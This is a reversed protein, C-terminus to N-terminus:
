FVKNKLVGSLTPPLDKVAEARVNAVKLEADSLRATPPPVLSPGQEVSAPGVGAYVVGGYGGGAAQM